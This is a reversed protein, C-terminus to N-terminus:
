VKKAENKLPLYSFICKNSLTLTKKTAEHSHKFYISNIDLLVNSFISFYHCHLFDLTVKM